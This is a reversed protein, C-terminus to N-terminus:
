IMQFIYDLDNNIFRALLKNISILDRFMDDGTIRVIHTLDENLAIDVFRSVLDEEEGRYVQFGKQTIYSAMYDDNKNTSTSLITKANVFYEKIRKLIKFIVPEGNIELMAKGPLRTSSMRAHVIIGLNIKKKKINSM